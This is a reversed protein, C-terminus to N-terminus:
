RNGWKLWNRAAMLCFVLCIITLDWMGLYTSHVVWLLEGAISWLFADRHRNGIRWMGVLIFVNGVWGM